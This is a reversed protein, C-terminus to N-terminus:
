SKRSLKRATQAARDLGAARRNGSLTGSLLASVTLALNLPLSRLSIKWGQKSARLALTGIILFVSIWIISRFLHYGYGIFWKSLTLGIYSPFPSQAREREKAAYLICDAADSRGHNRLVRALQEYPTYAGSCFDRM